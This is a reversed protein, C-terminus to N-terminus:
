NLSWQFVESEVHWKSSVLAQAMLPGPLRMIDLALSISASYPRERVIKKDAILAYRNLSGVQRLADTLNDFNSIKGSQMDVVRFHRTLDYYALKYRLRRELVPSDMWWRRKRRVELKVLFYLDVGNALAQQLGEDLDLRAYSDLYYTDGILYTSAREFRAAGASAERAGLSLCFILWASLALLLTRQMTLPSNGTQSAAVVRSDILYDGCKDGCLVDM